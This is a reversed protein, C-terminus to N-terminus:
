RSPTRPSGPANHGHRRSADGAGTGRRDHAAPAPRRWPASRPSRARRARRRSLGGDAGVRGAMPASEARWEPRSACGNAGVRAVVRASERLWVRRSACGCPGVRRLWEPRSLPVQSRGKPLAPRLIMRHIPFCSARAREHGACSRSDPRGRRERHGRAPPAHRQEVPVGRPERLDGVGDRRAGARLRQAEGDVHAVGVADLGDTASAASRNPPSRAIAHAAPMRRGPPRSSTVASSQSAWRPTLVVPTRCQRRAAECWRASSPAITTTLELAARTGRVPM